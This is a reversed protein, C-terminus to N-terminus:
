QEPYYGDTNKELIVVSASNSNDVPENINDQNFVYKSILKYTNLSLFVNEYNNKFTYVNEKTYHKYKRKYPYYPAFDGLVLKGNNDTFFDINSICKFINARDIWHLVFNVIVLDFKENLKFNLLTDQYMKINYRKEGDEVALKSADMGVFTKCNPLITKLFNLRYGNSAGLEIVSTIKKLNPLQKIQQICIDEDAKKSLIYEKNRLFWQDAEQIEFIDDQM